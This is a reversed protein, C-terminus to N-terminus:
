RSTGSHHRAYALGTSACSVTLLLCIMAAGSLVTQLGFGRQDMGGAGTNPMATPM